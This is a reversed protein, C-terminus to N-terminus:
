RMRCVREDKEDEMNERYKDCIPFIFIYVDKFEKKLMGDYKRVKERQIRQKTNRERIKTKV